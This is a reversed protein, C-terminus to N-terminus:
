KLVASSFAPDSKAIRNHQSKYATLTANLQAQTPYKGTATAQISAHAVAATAVTAATVGFDSLLGQVTTVAVAVLSAVTSGAPFVLGLISTTFVNLAQIVDQGPTGPVWNTVALAATQAWGSVESALAPQGDATLALSLGTGITTLIASLTTQAAKSCGIAAFLISGLTFQRRNM